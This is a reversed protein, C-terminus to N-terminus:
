IYQSTMDLAVETLDAALMSQLKPVSGPQTTARFCLEDGIRCGVRRRSLMWYKPQKYDPHPRARGPVGEYNQRQKNWSM